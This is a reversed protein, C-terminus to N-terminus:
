KPSPVERGNTHPGHSGNPTFGSPIKHATCWFGPLTSGSQRKRSWGGPCVHNKVVSSHSPQEVKVPLHVVQGCGAGRVVVLGWFVHGRWWVFFPPLSPSPDQLLTLIIVNKKKKHRLTTTKEESFFVVHNTAMVVVLDSQSLPAM